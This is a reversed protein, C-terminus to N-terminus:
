ARLYRACEMRKKQNAIHYKDATPSGGKKKYNKFPNRKKDWLLAKKRRGEPQHVKEGGRDEELGREKSLLFFIPSSPGCM